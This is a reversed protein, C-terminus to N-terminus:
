FGKSLSFFVRTDKDNHASVQRTLPTAVTIDALTNLPLTLRVGGGTSALSERKLSDDTPNTNWVRGADYFGYIEYTPLLPSTTADSYTVEVKGMIGQDGTVESPDYGRGYGTGFGGLGIEESSLLADESIQGRLAATLRLNPILAQQREIDATWKKFQPNGEVRTLGPDGRQSSGIMNLGQSYTVQASTWGGGFLTDGFGMDIGGRVMRLSDLRADGLNNDTQVDQHEIGAWGSLTFARRLIIPQRLTVSSNFSTGHIDFPRLTYGPNTIAYSTMSEVMTGWRGWPETYSLSGFSMEPKDQGHPAIGLQLAMRESEGLLGNTVVVGSTQYPGLYRSGYNDLSVQGQWYTRRLTIYLDAAAFTGVSPALVSEAQIGPLANVLNLAHELDQLRLPRQKTLKKTYAHALKRTTNDTGTIDVTTVFGEIAQLTVVGNAIDQDPLIVQSLFYGDNRYMFTLTNALAYLDAISVEHGLMAKYYPQIDSPRYATLGQFRIDHLTFRIAEAGKPPTNVPANGQINGTLSPAPAPIIKQQLQERVRGPDINTTQALAPMSVAFTLLCPLIYLTRRM